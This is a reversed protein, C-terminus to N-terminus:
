PAAHVREITSIAQDLTQYSLTYHDCIEVMHAFAEFGDELMTFYNSSHECLRMFVEPKELPKLETRGEPNYKPFIVLSPRAAEDVKAVSEKPARMFVVTGKTTGEYPKSFYAQPILQAILDIAANKLSIPRPHPRIRGDGPLILAVEDSLLRWGRSVLGACLTSKGSGSGGPLVVAKGGREIVGAHLHLARNTGAVAWNITSELMPVGLRRPVPEFMARGNLYVQFQPRFFRRWVNPPRLVISFDHLADPEIKPFYSYLVSIEEILESGVDRLQISVSFEGIQLAVSQIREELSVGADVETGM